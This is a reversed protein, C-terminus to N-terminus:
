TGAPLPTSPVANGAFLVTRYIGFLHSFNKEGTYDTEFRRRASHRMDGLANKLTLARIRARLENADGIPFLVGSVSDAIMEPYCGINSAIVPTGVALSEITTRPMGEYWLSPCLTAAAGRMLDLVQDSTMSGLWQVNLMSSAAERVESELPGTGVIVLRPLDPGFRWCEILTRLGKEETLRGAYLLYGGDGQGVGPDPDIFNPKVVIKPAPLGGQILKEKSFESLAIFRDVCHRWTGTAWHAVMGATAVASGLHSQRYCKHVVGPIRLTKGICDECASGDRFLTANVCLLRYNHLTHVVPVRAQHCARFISASITPFWNHVHVVDPRFDALTRSFSSKVASPSGFQSATVQLKARLGHIADNDADFRQVDIGNSALLRVEADVVADEGGRQQYRNHVMLVKM